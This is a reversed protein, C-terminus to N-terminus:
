IHFEVGLQSQCLARGDLCGSGLRTQNPGSTTTNSKTHRTDTDNINNVTRTVDDAVTTSNDMTVTTSTNGSGVSPSGFSTIYHTGPIKSPAGNSANHVTLNSDRNGVTIEVTSPTTVLVPHGTSYDLNTDNLTIRTGIADYTENSVSDEPNRDATPEPTTMVQVSANVNLLSIDYNIDSVFSTTTLDVPNSINSNIWTQNDEHLSISNQETQIRPSITTQHAAVYDNLRSHSITPANTRGTSNTSHM